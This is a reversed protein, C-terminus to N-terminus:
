CQIGCATPLSVKRLLAKDAAQDAREADSFSEIDGKDSRKDIDSAISGKELTVVNPASMTSYLTPPLAHNSVFLHQSHDAYKWRFNEFAAVTRGAYGGCFPQILPQFMEDLRSRDPLSDAFAAIGSRFAEGGADSTANM